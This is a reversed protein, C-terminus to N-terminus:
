LVFHGIVICIASIILHISTAILFFKWNRSFGENIYTGISRRPDHTIIGYYERIRSRLTQYIGLTTFEDYATTIYGFDYIKNKVTFIRFAVHYERRSGEDPPSTKHYLELKTIDEEWIELNHVTESTILISDPTFIMKEWQNTIDMKLKKNGFYILAMGIISFLFIFLNIQLAYNLPLLLSFMINPVLAFILGFITIFISKIIRGKLPNENNLTYKEPEHLETVFPEHDEEFLVDRYKKAIESFDEECVPCEPIEKLWRVLHEKHFLSECQPCSLVEDSKKLRLKCIACRQRKIEGTFELEELM